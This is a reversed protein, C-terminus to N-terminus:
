ILILEKYAMNYYNERMDFVSSLIDMKITNKFLFTFLTWLIM